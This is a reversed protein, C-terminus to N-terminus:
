DVPGIISEFTLEAHSVRPCDTDFDSATM